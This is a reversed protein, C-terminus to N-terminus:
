WDVPMSRLMEEDEETLETPDSVKPKDEVLEVTEEIVEEVPEEAVEEIVEQVPEEAVAEVTEEVVKVVFITEEVPEVVKPSDEFIDMNAEIVQEDEFIVQSKDVIPEIKDQYIPSTYQFNKVKDKARNLIEQSEDQIVVAVHKKEKKGFLFSFLGM